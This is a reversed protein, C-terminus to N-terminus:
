AVDKKREKKPCHNPPMPGLGSWSSSPFNTVCNMRRILHVVLGPFSTPFPQSRYWHPRCRVEATRPDGLCGESIFAFTVASNCAAALGRTKLPHPVSSEGCPSLLDTIPGRSNGAPSLVWDCVCGKVSLDRNEWSYLSPNTRIFKSLRIINCSHTDEGGLAAALPM